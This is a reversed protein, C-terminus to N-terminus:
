VGDTRGGPKPHQDYNIAKRHPVGFALDEEQSEAEIDQQAADAGRQWSCARTVIDSYEAAANGHGGTVRRKNVIDVNGGLVLYDDNGLIGNPLCECSALEGDTHGEGAVDAKAAGDM